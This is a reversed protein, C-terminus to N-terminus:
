FGLTRALQDSHWAADGFMEGAVRVRKIYLGIDFADTMGMGGHMQIGEQAALLAVQGAKAKAVSVMTAADPDGADLAQLAALTVAKAMEVESYLHAARHQLAQFSGVPVGFQKRENIYALTTGFAQAAMGTMEAGLCARGANLITELVEHGADVEGLVADATVEVDDFQLRAANRSDVMPTKECDLGASARDVLFLTLGDSDGAEGSTRAAVILQDAIHGDAVFRKEGNLRFGNGHRTAQMATKAPAHRPGEDVALAMLHDGAAIAGLHANKQDASGFKSLATAGLVATALFPSATLHKGMEEALLGAGVLGFGSGGYDEPVVIGAWGMEVMAKWLDRDFGDQTEGDRLKRFEAVPANQTLFGEAAERLMEQDETLVLAM